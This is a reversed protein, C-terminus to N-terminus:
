RRHMRCHIPSRQYEKCGSRFGSVEGKPRPVAHQWAAKKGEVNKEKELLQGMVAAKCIGLFLGSVGEARMVVPFLMPYQTFFVWRDEHDNM